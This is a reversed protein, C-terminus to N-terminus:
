TTWRGISDRKENMSFGKSKAKRSKPGIAKKYKEPNAHDKGFRAKKYEAFDMGTTEQTDKFAKEKKLHKVVKSMTKKPKYSDAEDQMESDAEDDVTQKIDKFDSGSVFRKQKGM